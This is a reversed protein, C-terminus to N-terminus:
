DGTIMEQRRISPIFGLDTPILLQGDSCLTSSRWRSEGDAQNGMEQNWVEWGRCLFKKNRSGIFVTDDSGVVPFNETVEGELSTWKRKKGNKWRYCLTWGLIRFVTGDSGLVPYTDGGKGFNFEWKVKGAFGLRIELPEFMCPEM